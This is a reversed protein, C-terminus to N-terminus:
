GHAGGPKVRAMAGTLLRAFRLAAPLGGFPDIAALRLVRGARVAPLAQWFASAALMREADAPVPPILVIWAEGVQALAELGMPATASYRTAATWANALGLRELVAGFMSDTGFVRFHRADGLNIVMLPRGDGGALRAKLRDLESRTDAVLAAAAATRGTRAGLDLAVREAGAFPPVGRAYISLTEVPAILKLKPEAWASFNSTFIVDPGLLRLAEYNPTGRLGIDAVSAPVPPEVVVQRYLVLEAAAVPTVGIALLTELLAWDVTAVRLAPAARAGGLTALLAGAVFGRRTIRARPTDASM